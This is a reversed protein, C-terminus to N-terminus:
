LLPKPPKAPAWVVAPTIKVPRRYLSNGETAYIWAPNAGAFAVGTVIGPEPANLIEIMRGSAECVQIGLPTAFYSQGTSDEAIGGTRSLWGTEPMELHFFPEGNVLAGDAAIQFSWSFRSQADSVILMAQDPSLAIGAPVAIEGGSYVTRTRGNSVLGITNNAQDTFYLDSKATLVLSHAAVNSAVIKESGAAGATSYSVIRRLAPEAAYLRNDAGYALASVDATVQKFLTVKVEPTSKYIRHAASDAFYVNGDRDATPSIASSYSGEIKQWPKDAYVTAYVKGRPDWDPNHMAEPEHIAIPAPYGRWLWRLADPMIAGGQKMDHGGSGIVLKADYGSYQFAEYMVQNNVPWSGAFFTGWPQDPAIHDNAGDQLFIRLPKPEARRIMAPLMDAGKMAVYTGIFSLVRHFQDPRNWAAMFAGVAGTSVGSLGRDDPNKSLNYSKAVEPILEDVLFSSFRDSLSDYEFIREYRSQADGSLAPLVGPDIFIGIMPPLDHSAILNDFVVPVREGNGLAGSGDLFIMFPAPKAADYQAPVYVSYNHPTGPYFRGPKLVYKTVTGKPVDDHAQSDAGLTYTQAPLLAAALVLLLPLARPKM